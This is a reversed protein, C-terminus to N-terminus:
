VILGKAYQVTDFSILEKDLLKDIFLNDVLLQNLIITSDRSYLINKAILTNLNNVFVDIDNNDITNEM